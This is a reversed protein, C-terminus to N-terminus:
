SQLVEKVQISLGVIYTATAFMIVVPMLPILGSFDAWETIDLVAMVIYAWAAVTHTIVSFNRFCKQIRSIENLKLSFQNRM